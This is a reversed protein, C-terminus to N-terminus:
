LWIGGGEVGWRDKRVSAVGGATVVLAAEWRGDGHLVGVVVEEGLRKALRCAAEAEVRTVEDGDAAMMVSAM